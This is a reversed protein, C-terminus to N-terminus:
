LRHVSGHSSPSRQLLSGSEPRARAVLEDQSGPNTMHSVGRPVSTGADTRFPQILCDRLEGETGVEMVTNMLCSQRGPELNRQPWSCSGTIWVWALDVSGFCQFRRELCTWSLDSLWCVYLSDNWSCDWLHMWCHALIVHWSPLPLAWSGLKIGIFLFSSVLNQVLNYHSNM